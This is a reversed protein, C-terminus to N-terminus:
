AVARARERGLTNWPIDRGARARSPFFPFASRYRRIAFAANRMETIMLLHYRIAKANFVVCM